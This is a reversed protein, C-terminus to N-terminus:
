EARLCGTSEEPDPQHSAVTLCLPNVGRKLPPHPESEQVMMARLHQHHVQTHRNQEIHWQCNQAMTTMKIPYLFHLSIWHSTVHMYPCILEQESGNYLFPRNCVHRHDLIVSAVSRDPKKWAEAGLPGSFRRTNYVSVQTNYFTWYLSHTLQLFKWTYAHTYMHTYAYICAPLFILLIMYIWNWLNYWHHYHDRIKILFDFWYICLMLHSRCETIGIVTLHCSLSQKGQM